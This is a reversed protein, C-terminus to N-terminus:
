AASGSTSSTYRADSHALWPDASGWPPTLHDIYVQVMTSSYVSEHRGVLSVRQTDCLLRLWARGPLRDVVHDIRPQEILQHVPTSAPSNAGVPSPPNRGSITLATSSRPRAASSVSCRPVCRGCGVRGRRGARGGEPGAPTRRGCRGAGPGRLASGPGAGSTASRRGSGGDLADDRAAAGPAPGGSAM